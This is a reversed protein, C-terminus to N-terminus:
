DMLMRRLVGPEIPKLLHADFGAQVALDRDQPQGYGTLALLKVARAWPLPGRRILRAVEYGSMGPLGIDIIAVDPRLERALQVGESGDSAFTVRHRWQALLMGLSERADERDEVVLVHKANDALPIASPSPAAAPAKALPFRTEFRSGAGVGASDVTVSGEHMEVLRKVLTLGIGLGGESRALTSQEQVFLEFVAALMDPHIGKGTDSVALVGSAGDRRTEITIAGGDPTFKSANVILNGFVQELRVPDGSIVLPEPALRVEVRQRRAATLPACAEVASAAAQNLDVDQRRLTVKGLELRSADLLDDVLRSIHAAQKEIMARCKDFVPDRVEMSKMIYAANRIPALPNRLEHALMALFEDRQRLGQARQELLDRVEYQRQRSRLAMNVASVLTVPHLPRQLLTMNGQLPFTRDVMAQIASDHSGVLVIPLDSWPPQADIAAQLATVDADLLAEETLMVCGIDPGLIRCLHAVDPCAITRVGPGDLFGAALTADAENPTVVAVQV